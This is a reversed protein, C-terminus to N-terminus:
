FVCVCFSHCVVGSWFACLLSVFLSLVLCFCLVNLCIWLAEKLLPLISVDIHVVSCLSVCSGVCYPCVLLCFLLVLYIFVACLSLVYFVWLFSQSILVFSMESLFFLFFDFNHSLFDYNHLLLHFYTISRRTIVIYICGDMYYSLFLCLSVFQPCFSSSFGCFTKSLYLLDSGYLSM